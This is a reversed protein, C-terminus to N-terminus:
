IPVDQVNLLLSNADISMTRSAKRVGHRVVFSVGCEYHRRTSEVVMVPRRLYGKLRHIRGLQSM